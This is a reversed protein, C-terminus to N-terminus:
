TPEKSRRTSTLDDMMKQNSREDEYAIEQKKNSEFQTMLSIKQDIKEIERFREERKKELASIENEEMLIIQNLKKYFSDLNKNLAPISKTLNFRDNSAYDNQYSLMKKIADHKKNIMDNIRVILALIKEKQKILAQQIVQIQRLDKM